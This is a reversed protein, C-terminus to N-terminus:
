SPPRMPELPQVDRYIRYVSVDEITATGNLWRLKALFEKEAESGPMFVWVANATQRVNDAAPLYRNFGSSIVSAQFNERSEFMVPYAIWYDTYMQHRDQSELHAMLAVRTRADSELTEEPRWLPLSTTVLSFLNVGLIVV